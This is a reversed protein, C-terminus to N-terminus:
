LPKQAEVYEVAASAFDGALLFVCARYRRIDAGGRLAEADALEEFADAFRGGRVAQGCLTFHEIRGAEVAILLSLDAKCRRCIPGTSNDARCVPCRMKM